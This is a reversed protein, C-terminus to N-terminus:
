GAARSELWVKAEAVHRRNMAGLTKMLGEREVRRLNRRVGEVDGAREALVVEWALAQAFYYRTGGKEAVRGLEALQLRARERDGRAEAALAESLLLQLYFEDSAVVGHRGCLRRLEVNLEEARAFDGALAHVEALNGLVFLVSSRAGMKRAAELAEEGRRVAEGLNGLNLELQSLHDKLDVIIAQEPRGRLGDALALASELPERAAEAEGLGFLRLVALHRLCMIRLTLDGCGEALRSASVAAHLAEEGRGRIGLFIAFSVLLRAEADPFRGEVMAMTAKLEKEPDGGLHTTAVAWRAVLGALHHAGSGRAKALSIARQLVAAEGTYDGARFRLEGIHSLVREELERVAPTPDSQSLVLARHSWTEALEESGWRECERASALLRLVGPDPVKARDWHDAVRFLLRGALTPAGREIALALSRHLPIAAADDLHLLGLAEGSPDPLRLVARRREWHLLGAMEVAALATRAGGQDLGLARDLVEEHADPGALAAVRLARLPGEQLTRVLGSMRGEASPGEEEDGTAHAWLIPGAGRHCESRFPDEEQDFELAIGLPFEQLVAKLSLIWNRSASDLKGAGEVLVLAPRARAHRAALDVLASRVQEPPFGLAHEGPLSGEFPVEREPTLPAGMEPGPPSEAGLLGSLAIPPLASPVEERHSRRVQERALRSLWVQLAGFPVESDSTTAATRFCEVGLARGQEELARFFERRAKGSGGSVLLLSGQGDQIRDLVQVVLAPPPTHREVSTPM